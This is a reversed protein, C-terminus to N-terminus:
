PSIEPTYRGIFALFRSIEIMDKGTFAITHSDGRDVFADDGSIMVVPVGFHGAIAASIVAEPVAVGNLKVEATLWERAKQYEFGTPGLHDGTAVGAVGEMEASIYVKLGDQAPAGVATGLLLCLALSTTTGM